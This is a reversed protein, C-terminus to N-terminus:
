ECSRSANSPPTLRSRRSWMVMGTNIDCQNQGGSFRLPGAHHADRLLGDPGVPRLFQHLGGGARLVQWWADVRRPRDADRKDGCGHEVVWNKEPAVRLVM